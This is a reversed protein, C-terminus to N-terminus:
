GEDKMVFVLYFVKRYKQNMSIMKQHRRSLKLLLAGVTVFVPWEVLLWNGGPGIVERLAGPGDTYELEEGQGWDREGRLKDPIFM